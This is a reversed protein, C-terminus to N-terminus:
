EKPTPKVHEILGRKAALIQGIGHRAVRSASSFAEEVMQGTDKPASRLRRAFQIARLSPGRFEDWYIQKIAEREDPDDVYYKLDESLAATRDNLYEEEDLMFGVVDPPNHLANRFPTANMELWISYADDLLTSPGELLIGNMDAQGLVLGMIDKSGQRMYTQTIVGRDDRGVSTKIIADYVRQAQGTDYGAETMKEFVYVASDLENQGPHERATEPDNVIDHGAAAIMLLELGEEDFHEPMDEHLPHWLCWSRRIVNLAHGDNHYHKYTDSSPDGHNRWMEELLEAALMYGRQSIVGEPIAQEAAMTHLQEIFNPMEPTLTEPSAGPAM